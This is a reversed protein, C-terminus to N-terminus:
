ACTSLFIVEVKAGALASMLVAFALVFVIVVTTALKRQMSVLSLLLVPALLM